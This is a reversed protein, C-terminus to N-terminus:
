VLRTCTNTAVQNDENATFDSLAYYTHSGGICQDEGALATDDDPTGSSDERLCDGGTRTPDAEEMSEKKM